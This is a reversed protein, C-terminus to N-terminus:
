CFCFTSTCDFLGLDKWACFYEVGGPTDCRAVVAHIALKAVSGVSEIHNARVAKMSAISRLLKSSCVM